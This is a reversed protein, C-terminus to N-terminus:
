NMLFVKMEKKYDQNEVLEFAYDFTEKAYSDRILYTECGAIVSSLAFNKRTANAMLNFGAKSTFGTKFGTAGEYELLFHNHTTFKKDNYEFEKKAFIYNYKAFKKRIVVLLRMLDYVNSYQGDEHLGTANRFNTHFMKLELAKKNMMKVFNWEDQAILEALALAAGNMSKIATAEIAKKVSIEEGEVLNLTTIKNIHSVDEVNKSIIIKDNLKIKGKELAEFVLYLTMIKTLSAPYVFQEARNEYLIENNKDNIIIASYKATCEQAMSNYSFIIFFILIKLRM